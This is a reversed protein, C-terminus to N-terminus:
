EVATIVLRDPNYKFVPTVYGYKASRVRWTSGVEAIIIGLEGYGNIVTDGIQAGELTDGKLANFLKM